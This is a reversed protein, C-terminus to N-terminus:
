RKPRPRELLDLVCERIEVATQQNPQDACAAAYTSLLGINDVVEATRDQGRQYCAGEPQTCDKIIELTEASTDLTETNDVQSGRVQTVTVAAVVVAILAVAAVVGLTIGIVGWAARMRNM